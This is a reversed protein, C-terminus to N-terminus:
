EPLIPYVDFIPKVDANWASRYDAKRQVQFAKGSVRNNQFLVVFGSPYHRSYQNGVSSFFSFPDTWGRSGMAADVEGETAGKEILCFNVVEVVQAKMAPSPAWAPLSLCALILEM